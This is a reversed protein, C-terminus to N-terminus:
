DTDKAKRHQNLRETEIRGKERAAKKREWLIMNALWIVEHSIAGKLRGSDPVKPRNM